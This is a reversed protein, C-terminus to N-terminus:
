GNYFRSKNSDQELKANVVARRHEQPVEEIPKSLWYDVNDTAVGGTRKGKPAAEATQQLERHTELQSQFYPNSLLSDVDKIGSEKMQEKVFDFEKADIGSSKLYAKVDYGFDNSKTNKTAPKEAKGGEKIEAELKKIRAYYQKERETFEEATEQEAENGNESDTTEVEVEEVNNSNDNELQNEM